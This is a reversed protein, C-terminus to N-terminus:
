YSANQLNESDCLWKDQLNRRMLIKDQILGISRCKALIHHSCEQVKRRTLHKDKAEKMDAIENLSYGDSKKQFVFLEDETLISQMTMDLESQAITNVAPVISDPIEGYYEMSMERDITSCQTILANKVCHYIFTSLKTNKDHRYKSQAHLAKAYAIQYLDDQMSKYRSKNKTQKKIFDNVLSWLLDDLNFDAIDM